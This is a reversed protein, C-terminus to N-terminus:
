VVLELCPPQIPVEIALGLLRINLALLSDQVVVLLRSVAGLVDNVGHGVLVVDDGVSLSEIRVELRLGLLQHVRVLYLHLLM